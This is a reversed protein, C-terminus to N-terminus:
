SVLRYAVKVLVEWTPVRSESLLKDLRDGTIPQEILDGLEGDPKIVYDIDGSWRHQVRFLPEYQKYFAYYPLSQSVLGANEFLDDFIQTDIDDPRRKFVLTRDIEFVLWWHYPRTPHLLELFVSPCEVYGRDPVRSLENLAAGPDNVHEVVHTAFSFDFVGDAFPLEEIDSRVVERDGSDFKGGRQVDKEIYREALVDARKHPNHGSGVDLVREWPLIRYNVSQL